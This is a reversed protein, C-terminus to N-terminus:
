HLISRVQHQRFWEASWMKETVYCKLVTYRNSSYPFDAPHAPSFHIFAHQSLVVITSLHFVRFKLYSTGRKKNCLFNISCKRTEYNPFLKSLKSKKWSIYIKSIDQKNSFQKNESFYNNKTHFDAISDCAIWLSVTFM